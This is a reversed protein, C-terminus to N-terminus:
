TTPWAIAELGTTHREKPTFPMPDGAHHAGIAALVLADARDDDMVIENPWWQRVTALIDPKKANGRGTAWKKLTAPNIVAPHHNRADLAAYLGHWLAHRDIASPLMPGHELIGEIVFLDPTTTHQDITHLINTLVARLRRSRTQYDAGNHGGIGTSTILTPQGNTLIAIGTNTLSPDIGCVVTM